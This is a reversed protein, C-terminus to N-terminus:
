NKSEDASTYNIKDLPLIISSIINMSHATVRKFFRYTLAASIANPGEPPSKLLNEVRDDCHDLLKDMEAIFQRSEKEDQKSYIKIVRGLMISVREKTESLDKWYPSERDIPRLKAIDFLNKCYDGIREADRGLSMFALSTPFETAGQVTAHVILERRLKQENRNIKIDTRFLDKRVSEPDAGSLLVSAALDFMHRGDVLMQNFKSAMSELGKNDGGLTKLWDLM